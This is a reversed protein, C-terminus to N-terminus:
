TSWLHKKAARRLTLHVMLGGHLREWVVTFLCAFPRSKGDARASAPGAVPIHRLPRGFTARRGADDDWSGPREAGRVSRRAAEVRDKLGVLGSGGTLDAGGVGDDRVSVRLVEDAVDVDIVVVSAQAHKIVNALSEGIVYYAGWRWRSRCAGRQACM